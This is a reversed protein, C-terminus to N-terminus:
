FLVLLKVFVPVILELISLIFIHNFDLGELVLMVIFKLLVAGM